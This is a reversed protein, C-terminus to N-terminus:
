DDSDKREKLWANLLDLSVHDFQHDYGGEDSCWKVEKVVTGEDVSVQEDFRWFGVNDPHLASLEHSNEAKIVYNSLAAILCESHTTVVVRHGLEVLEVIKEFLKVQLSPHLHIEPEEIIITSLQEGLYRLFLVLPALQSVTSSVVSLPVKDNSSNASFSFHPFDVLNYDVHLKGGLIENEISHAISQVRDDAFGSPINILNQLFGVSIGNRLRTGQGHSPQADIDTQLASKVVSSFNIMQGARTAPIYLAKGSGFLDKYVSQLVYQAIVSNANEISESDTKTFYDILFNGFTSQDRHLTVERPLCVTYNSSQDTLNLDIAFCNSYDSTLDSRIRVSTDGNTGWRVVKKSSTFGLSYCLESKFTNHNSNLISEFAQKEYDSLIVKRNTKLSRIWKMPDRILIGTEPTERNKRDVLYAGPPRFREKTLSGCLTYLLGAVWSKGTNGTGTFVTLTRLDITGQGIPGFNRVSVSTRAPKSM